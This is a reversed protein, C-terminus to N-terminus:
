ALLRTILVGTFYALSAAITGVVLTTLGMALRLLVSKGSGSIGTLIIMEGHELAFNVDSLAAKDGFSVSVHRFEIAPTQSNM